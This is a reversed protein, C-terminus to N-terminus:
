GRKGKLISQIKRIMIKSMHDFAADNVHIGDISVDDSGYFNRGKLYHLNAYKRKMKKAIKGMLSIKKEDIRFDEPKLWANLVPPAGLFLVPTNPHRSCLEHLFGEMREDILAPTLNHYADIVYIRADLEALLRAMDLELKASGSFGMNILPLDLARTVIQATGLGPRTVFAGHILSTGYYVLPLDTRPPTVSWEAEKDIGVALKLIQNRFPLYLRYRRKKRPMGEILTYNPNQDNLVFHPTAAAWRWRKQNQDYAYLGMGSFAAVNFNPEGLQKSGLQYRIQIKTSNTVFHVCMGASSHFNNKWVEPLSEKIKVPIRDFPFETNKWGRGEFDDASLTYWKVKDM